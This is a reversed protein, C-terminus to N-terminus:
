YRLFKQIRHNYSDVVYLNLQSDLAVAWPGNFTTANNGIARTMGAITIGHREGSPFFQIRQNDRDAVYLNGMPDLTTRTPFLLSTSDRGATCNINGAVLTWNSTGFMYRVINHCAYNGIILTNSFTEYYLGVPFALQTNNGGSGRGGFVLTGNMVGSPYSM